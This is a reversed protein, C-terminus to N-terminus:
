FVFNCNSFLFLLRSLTLLCYRLFFILLVHNRYKEKAVRRLNLFFVSLYSHLKANYQWFCHVLIIVSRNLMYHIFLIRKLCFSFTVMTVTRVSFKHDSEKIFQKKFRETSILAIIILIIRPPLSKNIELYACLNDILELHFLNFTLWMLYILIEVM